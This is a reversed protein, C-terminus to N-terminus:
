IIKLHKPLRYNIARLWGRKEPFYTASAGLRGDKRFRRVLYFDSRPYYCVAVVSGDPREVRVVGEFKQHFTQAEEWSILPCKAPDYSM